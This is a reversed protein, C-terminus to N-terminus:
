RQVLLHAHEDEATGDTLGEGVDGFHRDSAHPWVEQVHTFGVEADDVARQSIDGVVLALPRLTFYLLGPLREERTM